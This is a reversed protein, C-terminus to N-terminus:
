EKASRTEWTRPVSLAAASARERRCTLRNRLRRGEASACAVQRGGASAAKRAAGVSVQVTAVSQCVDVARGVPEEPGAKRRGGSTGVAPRLTGELGKTCGMPKVGQRGRLARDQPEETVQAKRPGGM